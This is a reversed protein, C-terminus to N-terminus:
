HEWEAAIELGIALAAAENEEDYGAFPQDTHLVGATRAVASDRPLGALVASLAPSDPVPTVTATTLPVLMAVDENARRWIRPRRTARVEDALRSLEPIATIDLPHQEPAAM